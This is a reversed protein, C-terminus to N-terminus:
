EGDTEVEPRDVDAASEGSDSRDQGSATENGEATEVTEAPEFIITIRRRSMHEVDIPEAREIPLSNLLVAAYDFPALAPENDEAARRDSADATPKDAILSQPAREASADIETDDRPTPEGILEGEFDRLEDAVQEPPALLVMQLTSVRQDFTEVTEADRGAIRTDNKARREGPIAATGSPTSREGAARNRLPQGPELVPLGLNRAADLMQQQARQPDDSRFRLALGDDQKVPRRADRGASAGASDPTRAVDRTLPVTDPQRRAMARADSQTRTEEREAADDKSAPAFSTRPETVEEAEPSAESAAESEATPAADALAEEPPSAAEAAGVGADGGRQAKADTAADIRSRMSRAVGEATGSRNEELALPSPQTAAAPPEPAPDAAPTQAAPKDDEEGAASQRSSALPQDQWQDLNDVGTQQLSYFTLGAAILVAAAVGSYVLRRTWVHRRDASGGAIRLRPEDEPDGLLMSREARETAEPLLERDPPEDPLRRLADRDATLDNVLERLGEDQALADREYAAREAPTMDGEVYAQLKDLDYPEPM